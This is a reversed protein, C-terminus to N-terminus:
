VKPSSWANRTPKNGGRSLESILKVDPPKSGSGSRLFYRPGSDAPVSSSRRLAAGPATDRRLIIDFAEAATHIATRSPATDGGNDPAEGRCVVSPDCPDGVERRMYSATATEEFDCYRRRKANLNESLSECTAHHTEFSDIVTFSLRM